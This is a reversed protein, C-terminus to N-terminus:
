HKNSRLRISNRTYTKYDIFADLNSSDMSFYSMSIHAYNGSVLTFYMTFSDPFQFLINFNFALTPGALDTPSLGVIGLSIQPNTGYATPFTIGYTLSGGSDTNVVVVTGRNNFGYRM